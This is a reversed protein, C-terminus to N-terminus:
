QTIAGDTVETDGPIENDPPLEIRDLIEKLQLARGTRVGWSDSNPTTSFDLTELMRRYFYLYTKNGPDRRWGAIADNTNTLFSHLTARPSSTDPPRLPDVHSRTDTDQASAVLALLSLTLFFILVLIFIGSSGAMPKELIRM